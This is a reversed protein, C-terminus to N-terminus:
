KNLFDCSKDKLAGLHHDGQVLQGLIHRWVVDLHVLERLLIASQEFLMLHFRPVQANANLLLPPGVHLGEFEEVVIDLLILELQADRRGDEICAQDHFILEVLFLLFSEIM